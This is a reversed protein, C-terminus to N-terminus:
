KRRSIVIEYTSLCFAAISFLLMMKVGHLLTVSLYDYVVNGILRLEDIPFVGNFVGQFNELLYNGDHSGGIHMVDEVTPPSVIAVVGVVVCLLAALATLYRNRCAAFIIMALALGITVLGYITSIGSFSFMTRTLPSVIADILDGDISLKINYWGFFTTCIILAGFAIVLGRVLVSGCTSSTMLTAGCRPCRRMLETTNEGCESCFKAM